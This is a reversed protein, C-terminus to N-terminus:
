SESTFRIPQSETEHHMFLKQHSEASRAKTALSASSARREGPHGRFPCLLGDNDIM